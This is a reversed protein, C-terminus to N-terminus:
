AADAEPHLHYGGPGEIAWLAIGLGIVLLGFIALYGMYPIGAQMLSMADRLRLLYKHRNGCFVALFNSAVVGKKADFFTPRYSM